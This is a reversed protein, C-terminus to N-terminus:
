EEVLKKLNLIERRIKRLIEKHEEQNDFGITLQKQDKTKSREQLVRKAGAITFRDEYLLRKIELILEVEKRRYLRQNSPTKSPRVINFETEWYRLVYPKIGTLESVEGIKFYLKNPIDYGEML